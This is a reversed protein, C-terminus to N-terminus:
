KAFSRIPVAYASEAVDWDDAMFSDAQPQWRCVPPKGQQVSPASRVMCCDPTITPIVIINTHGFPRYIVGGIEM